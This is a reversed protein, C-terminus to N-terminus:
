SILSSEEKQKVELDLGFIDRYKDKFMEVFKTLPKEVELILKKDEIEFKFKKRFLFDNFANIQEKKDEVKRM